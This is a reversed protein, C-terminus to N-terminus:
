SELRKKIREIYDKHVVSLNEIIKELDSNSLKCIFKEGKRPNEDKFVVFDVEATMEFNMHSVANRIHRLYDIRDKDSNYTTEVQPNLIQAIYLNIEDYKEQYEDFITERPIVLMVYFAVPIIGQNIVGREAICNQTFKDSFNLQKYADSKVFNLTHMELLWIFNMYTQIILNEHETYKVAM